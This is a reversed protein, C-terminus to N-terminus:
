RSSGHLRGHHETSHRRGRSPRAGARTMAERQSSSSLARSCPARPTLKDVVRTCRGSRRRKWTVAPRNSYLVIIADPAPRRLTPLAELGTVPSMEQDLLILDPKVRPVAAIADGGDTAEGVVSLAPPRAILARLVRRAPEADDVILM